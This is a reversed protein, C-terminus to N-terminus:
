PTPTTPNNFTIVVLHDELHKFTLIFYPVFHSLRADFLAKLSPPNASPSGAPVFLDALLSSAGEMDTSMRSSCKLLKLSIMLPGAGFWDQGSIRQPLFSGSECISILHIQLRAIKEATWQDGLTIPMLCRLTHLLTNLFIRTLKIMTVSYKLLKVTQSNDDRLLNNSPDAPNSPPRSLAKPEISAALKSLLQSIYDVQLKTDAQIVSWDSLTAYEIMADVQRCLLATQHIIHDKLKPKPSDQSYIPHNPYLHGNWIYPVFGKIFLGSFDNFQDGDHSDNILRRFAKGLHKCRVKNIMGDKASIEQPFLGEYFKWPALSVIASWLRDMAPSFRSLIEIVDVLRPSSHKRADDDGLGFSALLDQLHQKVAPLLSTWIYILPEERERMKDSSMPLPLDDHWAHRDWKDMLTIMTEAIQSERLSNSLSDSTTEPNDTRPIRQRGRRRTRGSM